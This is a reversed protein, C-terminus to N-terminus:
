QRHHASSASWLASTRLEDCTWRALNKAASLIVVAVRESHRRGSQDVYPLFSFWDRVADYVDTGYYASCSAACVIKGGTVSVIFRRFPM